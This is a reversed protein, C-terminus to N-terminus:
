WRSRGRNKAAVREHQERVARAVREESSENAEPSQVDMMGGVLYLFEDAPMARLEHLKYQPFFNLFRAVV